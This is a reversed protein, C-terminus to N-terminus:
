RSQPLRARRSDFLGRLSVRIEATLTFGTRCFTQRPLQEFSDDGAQYCSYIQARMLGAKVAAAAGLVLRL